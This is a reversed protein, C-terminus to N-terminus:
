PSPKKARALYPCDLAKAFSEARAQGNNSLVFCGIGERKLRLILRRAAEDAPADPSVLTNDIDFIVGQFGRKKLWAPTLEYVSKLRFDPFFAELRSM